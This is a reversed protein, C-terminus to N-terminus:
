SNRPLALVKLQKGFKAFDPDATVLTAGTRIALEAAFCDGYGLKYIHKLTAAADAHKEAVEISDVYHAIIRLAEIAALMGTRRALAYLSEGRNVVSMSLRTDGKQAQAFLKDLREIGPGKTLYRIVANADLVYEKV